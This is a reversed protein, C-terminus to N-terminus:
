ADSAEEEDNAPEIAANTTGLSARVNAVHALLSESQPEGAAADGTAAARAAGAEVVTAAWRVIADVFVDPVLPVIGPMITVVLLQEVPDRDGVRVLGRRQFGRLIDELRGVPPPEEGAARLRDHVHDTTIEVRGRDDLLSIGEEYLLRLMLLVITEDKRLRSLRAGYATGWPELALMGAAAHQTIRYGLAGMITQIQALHRALLRYAPAHPWDEYLCQHLLLAQLATQLDEEEVGTDLILDVERLKAM